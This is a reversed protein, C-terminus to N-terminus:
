LTGFNGNNSQNSYGSQLSVSDDAELPAFASSTAAEYSNPIPTIHANFADYDHDIHRDEFMFPAQRAPLSNMFSEDLPTSYLMPAASFNPGSSSQSRSHM